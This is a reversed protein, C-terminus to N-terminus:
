PGRLAVLVVSGAGTTSAAPALTLIVDVPTLPLAKFSTYQASASLDIEAPPIIADPTGTVGLQATAGVGDFPTTVDVTASILRSGAPISGGPVVIVPSASAFTFPVDATIFQTPGPPGPAGPRLRMLIQQFLLYIAHHTGIADGVRRLLAANM